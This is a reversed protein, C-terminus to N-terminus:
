GGSAVRSMSRANSVNLVETFEQGRLISATGDREATRGGVDYGVFRGLHIRARWNVDGNAGIRREAEALLGIAEDVLGARDRGSRAVGLQIKDAGRILDIKAALVDPIGINRLVDMERAFSSARMVDELVGRAIGSETSRVANWDVNWAILAVYAKWAASNTGRAEDLGRCEQPLVEFEAWESVLPSRRPGGPGAPGEEILYGSARARYRGSRGLVWPNALESCATRTGNAVVLVPNEEDSSRWLRLGNMPSRKYEGVIESLSSWTEGLKQQVDLQVSVEVKVPTSRNSSLRLRYWLPCYQQGRPIQVALQPQGAGGPNSRQAVAMGSLVSALLLVLVM